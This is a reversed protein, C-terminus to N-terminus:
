TRPAAHLLDLVTRHLEPHRWSPLVDALPALAFRRVHMRPHPVQLTPEHIVTRGFLLIDIDIVRSTLMGGPSRRRGLEHEIASCESLVATASRGTRVVLVVNLFLTTSEFGWPRTWHDRSRAVITGVRDGILAQARELQKPPDGLDAGLLLAVEEEMRVFSDATAEWGLPRGNM